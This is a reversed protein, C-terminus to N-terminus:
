TVRCWRKADNRIKSKLSAMDVEIGRLDPIELNVLSVSGREEEPRWDKDKPPDTELWRMVQPWDPNALEKAALCLVALDLPENRDEERKKIFHPVDKDRVMVEITLKRFYEADYGCKQNVPFHMYEAADLDTIRLRRYVIEKATDVQLLTLLPDNRSAKWWIRDFGPRGVTPRVTLDRRSTNKCFKGVMDKLFNSDICVYHAGLVYGSPHRWTKQLATWLQDWVERREPNGDLILYQLGWTADNEAFATWAVELRNMQVDVGAVILGAKADLLIDGDYEPYVERRNLILEWSPPEAGEIEYSEGLILNTFPRLGAVGLKRKALFEAAFFHLWSKFGRKTPGLVLFANAQYGRKGGTVEPNTPVWEGAEVMAIRDTETLAAQCCPCELFAERVWHKTTKGDAAKTKPWKVHAWLIVFPPGDCKPCRVFWKRMDTEEFMKEIRSFGKASPTSTQISFSDPFRISRQEVLFIVDGDDGASDRYADTEDFLVWKATHARLNAPSNSGGALFWGGPYKKHCITNEGSGRVRKPTVKHVVKSLREISDILPSFKNKSWNVANGLTPHVALASCPQQDIMWCLLGEIIASKGLLQSCFQLTLSSVNPDLVADLPEVQYPFNRWRGAKASDAPQMRYREQWESPKLVERPRCLQLLQKTVPDSAQWDCVLNLLREKEERLLESAYVIQVASIITLELSAYVDSRMLRIGTALDNRLEWGMARARSERDQLQRLLSTESDSEDEEPDFAGNPRGPKSRTIADIRERWGSLNERLDRKDRSELESDAFVSGIHDLAKSLDEKIEATNVLEALLAANKLEINTCRAKLERLKAPSAGPVSSPRSGRPGSEIADRIQEASYLGNEDPVQGTARLRKRLTPRSIPFVRCAGQITYREPNKESFSM